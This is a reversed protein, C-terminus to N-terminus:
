FRSFEGRLSLGGRRPRGRSKRSAIDHVEDEYLVDQDDVPDLVITGTAMATVTNENGHEAAVISVSEGVTATREINRNIATSQEYDFDDGGDYDDLYRPRKAPRGRHSSSHGTNSTSTGRLSLSGKSSRGRVSGRGRKAM